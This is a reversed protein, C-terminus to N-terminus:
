VLGLEGMLNRLYEGDRRALDELNDPKSNAYGVQRIIQEGFQYETHVALPGSYEMEVLLKLARRWDVSGAGMSTFMPVYPPAGDTNPAHFSDKIGVMVLYDRIMALGMAMDEGDLIMHGFDPYVGVHQPDFDRVLHMVGACNSGICQGSHTHYCTLVGHRASLKAFGELGHRAESLLQWYDGGDVFRFYGIKVQGIGAEACAAYLRDAAPDTPDILSVPATALSCVLGQDQWIRNAEPLAQHVNDLNVPHGPRVCIDIGDYGLDLIKEGLERPSLDEFFKSNLLLKM